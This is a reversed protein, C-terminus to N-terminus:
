DLQGKLELPVPKLVQLEEYHPYRCAAIAKGLENIEPVIVANLIRYAYDAEGHSALAADRANSFFDVAAKWGEAFVLAESRQLKIAPTSTTLETM